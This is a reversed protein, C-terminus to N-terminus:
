SQRDHGFRDIRAPVVGGPASRDSGLASHLANVLGILERHEHDVEVIGVSFNDQWHLLTM